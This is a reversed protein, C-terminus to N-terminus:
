SVQVGSGRLNLGSLLGVIGDDGVGAEEVVIDGLDGFHSKGNANSGDHICSFDDDNDCSSVLSKGQSIADFFADIMHM